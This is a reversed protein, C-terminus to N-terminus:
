QGYRLTTGYPAKLSGNTWDVWITPFPPQKGFDGTQLDTLFVCAVAKENAVEAMCTGFHTGGGGMMQFDLVEQPSRCVGKARVRDDVCYIAVENVLQQDMLRIIEHKMEGIKDCMSGSTDVCLVIRSIQDPAYGPLPIGMSLYRRNLRSWTNERYSKHEQIPDRLIERWDAREVPVIEDFAKALSDPCYGAQRGGAADKENEERAKETKHKMRKAAEELQKAESQSKPLIVDSPEKGLGTGGKGDGAMKKMKKANQKLDRYIQEMTRGRYKDDFLCDKPLQYGM